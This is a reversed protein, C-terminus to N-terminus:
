LLDGSMKSSRPSDGNDPMWCGQMGSTSMDQIIAQLVMAESGDRGIQVSAVGAEVRFASVKGQVRLQQLSKQALQMGLEMRGEFARRNFVFRLSPGSAGSEGAGAMRAVHGASVMKLSPHRDRLLEETARPLPPTTAATRPSPPPVPPTGQRQAPPKAGPAPGTPTVGRHKPPTQSITAGPAPGPPTAGRFSPPRQSRPAWAGSLREMKMADLLLQVVGSELVSAKGGLEVSVAGGAVTFSAIKEEDRLKTLVGRAATECLERRQFYKRGLMFVIVGETTENATKTQQKMALKRRRMGAISDAPPESSPAPVNHFKPEPEPEPALASPASPSSGGATAVRWSNPIKAFALNDMIKRVVDLKAEVNSLTVAATGTSKVEFNKIVRKMKLMLLSIHLQQVAKERQMLYEPTLELKVVPLDGGGKDDTSVGQPPAGRPTNSQTSKVRTPTRSSAATVQQSDANVSLATSAEGTPATAPSVENAQSRTAELVWSGRLKSITLSRTIRQAVDDEKAGHVLQIIAKGGNTDVEYSLAITDRKLADM